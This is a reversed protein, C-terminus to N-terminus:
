VRTLAVSANITMTGNYALPLSFSNIVYDGLIGSKSDEVYILQNPELYFKPQCTITISDTYMLHQYLLNRIEDYASNGTSSTAFYNMQEDTVLCWKQGQSNYLNIKDSSEQFDNSNIFIIDQVDKNYLTKIENNNVVKTRRGIANVSYQELQPTDIFDLWYDLLNPDSFVIPNWGNSWKTLDYLKRWEAILEEDYFLKAAGIRANELAQRYLEERWEYNDFCKPGILEIKANLNDDLNFNEDNTINQIVVREWGQNYFYWYYTTNEKCYIQLVSNDQMQAIYKDLTTSIENIKEITVIAIINANSPFDKRNSSDAYQYRILLGTDNDVVSFMNYNCLNSQPKQDIAVHYRIGIEGGSQSKRLGWVIFDNKFNDYNPNHTFSIVTEANDLIYYYKSDSFARIYSTNDDLYVIPTYYNNLYNKQEQFIFNGNLDFFYEYNGLISIIKDLLTVVTDGASLILEGPYTFDTEIYGIDDNYQYMQPERGLNTPKNESIVFATNPTDGSFFWIPKDGIYKMQLKITQDLDNIFIKNIDIEGIHNVSELIIQYITPYTILIDNNELTEYREHFTTSCPLTGGVDGNLQVMKDKGTVSINYGSTTRSLNATSIIFIGCPFWLIDDYIPFPNKYGIYCKIKKNISILNNINDLQNNAEEAYMSFNITRRISSNGNGSINGSLIKGQIEGIIKEEKFSLLEIKIYQKKIKIKDLQELFSKDNLHNLNM